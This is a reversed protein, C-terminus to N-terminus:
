FFYFIIFLLARIIIIFYLFLFLLSIASTYHIIKEIGSLHVRSQWLVSSRVTLVESYSASSTRNLRSSLCLLVDYPGDVALNMLPFVVSHLGRIVIRFFTRTRERPTCLIKNNNRSFKM